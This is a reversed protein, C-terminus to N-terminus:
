SHRLKLAARLPHATLTGSTWVTSLLWQVSSVSAPKPFSWCQSEWSCPSHTNTRNTEVYWSEWWKESPGSTPSTGLVGTALWLLSKKFCSLSEPEQVHPLTALETNAHTSSPPLCKTLRIKWKRAELRSVILHGGGGQSRRGTWWCHCATDSNKSGEWPMPNM